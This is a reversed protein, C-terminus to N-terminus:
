KWKGNIWNYDRATGEKYKNAIRKENIYYWCYYYFEGGHYGIYFVMVKQSENQLLGLYELPEEYMGQLDTKQGPVLEGFEFQVSVKDICNIKEASIIGLGLGKTFIVMEMM